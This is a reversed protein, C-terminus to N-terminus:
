ATCTRNKGSRKAEYLAEDARELAIELAEGPRWATVGASFTVFVERQEHLFLAETLGRQLRTLAQQAEALPTAPLLVVFEEGGFRALHDVPRLRERVAAALSKLALDGAAHGLTDNLKKFNDIDILGIALPAAEPGARDVRAREADFAQALGRRNAVQTLADTSVEDSLRRLEGELERVRTELETAKAHEDEMRRQAAGVLQQVARSEDVIERVVGALSELSEARAVAEAHRGVSEHFRGTHEGLAGVEGLLRHILGKLADRAANREDRVRQQRARTEALLETAARVGRATIGDALRQELSECQGRAWSDDEAVEVLGRGLERCLDGLQEVLHHRHAFLRRARQCLEDVEAVREPSVGDAAIADALAALRDALEAARPEAPPLGARVTTELSAVVPQWPADPLAAEAGPAEDLPAPATPPLELPTDGEASPAEPDEYRHDGDWAGVLAQLRQQLRQLDGRSGDLVRQLSEKKRATTWQRGGREVGKVLKEVLAAWVPGQAKPDAPLPLGAEEAYARAYHEPTPELKAMALRRLAGKAIQAPTPANM